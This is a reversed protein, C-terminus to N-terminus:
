LSVLLVARRARNPFVAIQGELRVAAGSVLPKASAVCARNVAFRTAFNDSGDLVVDVSRVAAELAAPDLREALCTVDVGPNLALLRAKAAEVKPRGVDAPAICSRARCTRERRRPRLREARAQRRREDRSIARGSLRARRARRAARECRPAAGPGGRRRGALAVQRAYRKSMAPQLVLVRARGALDDRAEVVQWGSGVALAVLADRQEHGHELLLAGDRALHERAAGVIARLADLGDPGGDLALKPEFALAALAPDDSAVYPANCVIM